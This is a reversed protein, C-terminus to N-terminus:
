PVAVYVIDFTIGAPTYWNLDRVLSDEDPTITNKIRVTYHFNPIDEVIAYSGTLDFEGSLLSLGGADLSLGEPTLSLAFGFTAIIYREVIKRRGARTFAGKQTRAKVTAQRIVLSDNTNGPPLGMQYEWEVIDNDNVTAPDLNDFYLALKDAFAQLYDTFVKRAQGWYSNQDVPFLGPPEFDIWNREVDSYATENAIPLNM